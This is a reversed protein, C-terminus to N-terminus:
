DTSRNAMLYDRWRRYGLREYFAPLWVWGIHCMRAGADSLLESAQVVMASGIGARRAPEAVGVCGITAMDDGLMPWFVSCRGPGTFLLSGVLEGRADRALLVSERGEEFFRLWEPFHRQEFALAEALDGPEAVAVRMGAAALRERVGDPAVYGHLDATLDTVRHDWMWGRSEFFQVAAPLDAPVGPWIYGQGGSGLHVRRVGAAWLRSTASELLTTGIGRRQWNPDVLLHLISGALDIAVAGAVDGDQEAVLGARVLDLGDPLLPWAPALAVHCLRELAARDASPHVDRLHVPAIHVLPRLPPFLVSSGLTAASAM